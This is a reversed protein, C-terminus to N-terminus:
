FKLVIKVQETQTNSRSVPDINELYIVEGSYKVLDPDQISQLNAVAGSTAGIIQEGPNFVGRLNTLTFFTADNSHYTANASVISENDLQYVVEDQQFVGSIYNVTCKHRQDYTSFNKAINNIVFSNVNATGVNASSNAQFVTKSTVFEGSVNGLQLLAGVFSSVVGTALTNVQTVTAGVTFVGSLSATNITLVVNSYLPDRLVGITRFDNTTPINGSETNAFSVGLGIATAGLELAANAGHGGRPAFVPILVATNTVGGTNGGITLTAYSYGSGRSLIEVQYISNTSATNVLARAVSGSGDGDVVILPTIEYTSTNSLTTSFAGNVTIRRAAGNYGVIKRTEGAGTGSLIHICSSTYFGNNPSASTPLEYFLIDGGVAIQSASFQGTLTADYNSGGSSVRIVDIAGSVANGVVNANTGVPMFNDTTFKNWVTSTVSYIYKWVYGDSTNYFESDAAAEPDNIDPTETSATNGNNDLVKFIHYNSTANVAAYFNTGFIATNSDYSQYVTNSAWEVRPALLFVDNDTLRKGFVMNQHASYLLEQYSDQPTPITGNAYSVHKGAFLYYATNASETISEKLQTALHTKFHTPILSKSM